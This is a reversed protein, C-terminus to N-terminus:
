PQTAGPFQGPAYITVRTDGGYPDPTVVVTHRVRDVPVQWWGGSPLLMRGSATLSTSVQATDGVVQVVVVAIDASIPMACSTPVPRSPMGATSATYSSAGIRRVRWDSGCLRVLAAQAGTARPAHAGQQTRGLFPLVLAAALLALAWSPLAPRAYEPRMASGSPQRIVPRPLYFSPFSRPEVHSTEPAHDQQM